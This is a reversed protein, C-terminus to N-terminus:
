STTRALLALQQGPQSQQLGVLRCFDKLSLAVLAAGGTQSVVAVPIGSPCYRRAQELAATIVKPLRKRTKVEPSLTEGSPLRVPLVDPAPKYRPRFVVRETKLARAAQRERNAARRSQASM